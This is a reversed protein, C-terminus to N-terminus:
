NKSKQIKDDAWEMIKQMARAIMVATEERTTFDKPNNGNTIEHQIAYDFQSKFKLQEITPQPAPLNTALIDTFGCIDHIPKDIIQGVWPDMVRVTINNTIDEEVCVWHNIAYDLELLMGKKFNKPKTYHRAASLGVKKLSDWIIKGGDNGKTFILTNEMESPTMVRGTLLFLSRCLATNTCGYDGITLVSNGLKQRSWRKDRQSFIAQSDNM